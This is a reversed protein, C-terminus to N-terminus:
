RVGEEVPAEVHHAEGIGAVHDCRAAPAEDRTRGQRRDQHRREHGGRADAEAVDRETGQDSSEADRDHV